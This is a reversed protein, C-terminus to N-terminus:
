KPFSKMKEESYKLFASLIAPTIYRNESVIVEIEPQINNLKLKMVTNSKDSFVDIVFDNELKKFATKKDKAIKFGTNKLLELENQTLVNEKPPPEYNECFLKFNM